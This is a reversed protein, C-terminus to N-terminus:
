RHNNELNLRSTEEIQEIRHQNADTSSQFLNM